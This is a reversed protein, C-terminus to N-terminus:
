RGTLKLPKFNAQVSRLNFISITSSVFMSQHKRRIETYFEDAEVLISDIEAITWPEQGVKVSTLALFLIDAFLCMNNNSSSFAFRNGQSTTRSVLKIGKLGASSSAKLGPCRRVLCMQNRRHAEYIQKAAPLQKMNNIKILTWHARVVRSVRGSDTIVTSNWSRHVPSFLKEWDLCSALAPRPIQRCRFDAHTKM